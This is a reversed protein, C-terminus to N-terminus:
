SVCAVHQLKALMSWKSPAWRPKHLLLTWVRVPRNWFTSSSIWDRTFALNKPKPSTLLALFLSLGDRGALAFFFTAKAVASVMVHGDQAAVEEPSSLHTSLFLTVALGPFPLLEHALNRSLESEHDSNELCSFRPM